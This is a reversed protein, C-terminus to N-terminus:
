KLRTMDFFFVKGYNREEVSIRCEFFVENAQQAYDHDNSTTFDTGSSRCGWWFVLDESRDWDSVLSQLSLADHYLDSHFRTLIPGAIEALYGFTFSRVQEMTIRMDEGAQAVLMQRSGHRVEWMTPPQTITTDNM